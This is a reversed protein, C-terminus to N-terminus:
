SIGTYISGLNYPFTFLFLIKEFREKITIATLKIGWPKSLQNKMGRILVWINKLFDESEISM